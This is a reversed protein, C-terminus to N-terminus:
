ISAVVELRAARYAPVAAAVVAAVAAVLAVTVLQMAPVTFTDVGKDALAHVLAAGFGLGIATGLVTGLMAVLVAEWRVSSRVQRKSMGVARLLGIERTREFVSLALTNAIGFLAIVIAMVLLVYILNLMEDIQSAMSGKFEDRTLVDANPYEALAGEVATRVQETTYGSANDITLYNDVPNAVSANYAALSVAYGSTPGQEEYIATVTYTEAATDAFAVELTDGLVIGEDTATTDHVAIDHRGLTALDGQAAGLDLAEHVHAPDFGMVETGAGDVTVPAFRLPTVTGTEPLADVEAAAAPSLGGMGWTTEVVWDAKLSTDLSKDISSKTSDAFVTIFAVLGVGIM